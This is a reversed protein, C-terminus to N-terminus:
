SLAKLSSIEEESFNERRYNEFEGKRAKVMRLFKAKGGVGPIWGLTVQGQAERSKSVSVPGGEELARFFERNEKNAEGQSTRLGNLFRMAVMEQRASPDVEGSMICKESLNLAVTDFEDVWAGGKGKFFGATVPDQDQTMFNLTHYTGYAWRAKAFFESAEVLDFKSEAYNYLYFERQGDDGSTVYGGQWRASEPMKAFVEAVNVADRRVLDDTRTLIFQTFDNRSKSEMERLKVHLAASLLDQKGTGTAKEVFRGGKVLHLAGVWQSKLLGYARDQGFANWIEEMWGQLEEQNGALWSLFDMDREDAELKESILGAIDVRHAEVDSNVLREEFSPAMSVKEEEAPEQATEAEEVAEEEVIATPMQDSIIGDALLRLENKEGTTRTEWWAYDIVKARVIFNKLMRRLEERTMGEMSLLLSLDKFITASNNLIDRRFEPPLESFDMVKYKEIKMNSYYDGILTSGPFRGEQSDKEDYSEVEEMCEKLMTLAANSKDEPAMRVVSALELYNEIGSFNMWSTLGLVRLFGKTYILPSAVFGMRRANDFCSESILRRERATLPREPDDALRKEETKEEIWRDWSSVDLYQEKSVVDRIEESIAAIIRNPLGRRREIRRSLELAREGVVDIEESAGDFVERTTEALGGDRDLLVYQYGSDGPFRVALSGRGNSQVNRM